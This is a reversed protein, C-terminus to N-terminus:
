TEEETKEVDKIKKKEPRLGRHRRGEPKEIGKSKLCAAMTARDEESPKTGPEPRQLNNEQACADFAARMKERGEGAYSSLSM